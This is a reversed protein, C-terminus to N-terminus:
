RTITESQRPLSFSDTNYLTKSQPRAIPSMTTKFCVLNKTTMILEVNVTSNIMLKGYDGVEMIFIKEGGAKLAEFLKNPDTIHECLRNSYWLFQPVYDLQDWNSTYITVKHSPDTYANVAPALKTMDEARALPKPFCGILFAAGILAAYSIRLYARERTMSILRAAPIAALISFAPFAPMIYRLVKYKALSFPAVVLFVWVVLLVASSARSRMAVRLQIVLGVIILPLWPWYFRLLFWPYKLLGLIFGVYDLEGSLGIKGGIFHFHGYLFRAGHSLYQSVYWISPLLLAILLGGLLRISLLKRLQRTVILHSIIIGIPILGIVSRTMIAAGIAPGCLILYNPRKLGKVYFYLSLTFFLTFPADTMARMAWKMFYQSLMMIWSACISPLFDAGLERALLFVLLIILLASLASPFKAAFDSVGLAKLSLAELWIFMPPYEFNLVGNFRVNWWDGTILMQKGEHAYFADDYGNLGGESLHSFLIVSALALAVLLHLTQHPHSRRPESDSDASSKFSSVSWAPFSYPLFKTPM